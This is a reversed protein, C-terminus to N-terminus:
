DGLNIHRLSRIKFSGCFCLETVTHKVKALALRKRGPATHQIATGQEVHIKIHRTGYKCCGGSQSGLSFFVPQSTPNM